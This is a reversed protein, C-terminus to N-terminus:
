MGGGGAGSGVVCSWAASAGRGWSVRSSGGRAGGGASGGDGDGAGMGAGVGSIVRDSSVRCSEPAWGEVVTVGTISARAEEAPGDGGDDDSPVVAVAV